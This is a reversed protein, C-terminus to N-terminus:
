ALHRVTKKAKIITKLLVPDSVLTACIYLVIDITLRQPDSKMALERGFDQNSEITYPFRTLANHVDNRRLYSGRGKELLGLWNYEKLPDFSQIIERVERFANVWALHELSNQFGKVKIWMWLPWFTTFSLFRESNPLQVCRLDYQAGESCVEMIRIVTIHDKTHAKGGESLYFGFPSHYDRFAVSEFSFDNLDLRRGMVEFTVESLKGELGPLPNENVKNLAKSHIHVKKLGRCYNEIASRIKQVLPFFMFKYAMETVNPFAPALGDILRELNGLAAGRAARAQKDDYSIRRMKNIHRDDDPEDVWIHICKVHVGYNKNFQEQNSKYHDLFVNAKKLDEVSHIGFEKWIYPLAISRTAKCVHSFNVLDSKSKDYHDCLGLSKPYANRSKLELFYAIRQFIKQDIVRFNENNPEMTSIDENKVNM